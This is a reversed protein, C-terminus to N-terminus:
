CRQYPNICTLMMCEFATKKYCEIVNKTSMQNCHFNVIINEMGVQM